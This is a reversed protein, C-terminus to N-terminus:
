AVQLARETETSAVEEGAILGLLGCDHALWAVAIERDIRTPLECISDMTAAMGEYGWRRELPGALRGMAEYIDM